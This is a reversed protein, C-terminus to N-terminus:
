FSRAPPCPVCPLALVMLDSEHRAICWGWRCHQSGIREFGVQQTADAASQAAAHSRAHAAAHARKAEAEHWEAANLQRAAEDAAAAAQGQTAVKHQLQRDAAQLEGGLQSEQVELQRGAEQLGKLEEQLGLCHRQLRDQEAGLAQTAQEQEQAVQSLTTM